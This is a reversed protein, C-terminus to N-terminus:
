FWEFGDAFLPQCEFEPCYEFAGLDQISTQSRAESRAHKVYQRLVPQAAGALPAAQDINVSESVLSFDQTGTNRFGPDTGSINDLTNLTGALSGHTAVWGSSLWNNRADAIGDQNLVALYSGGSSAYLINNRIDAHEDNTSLRLLTTNGSRTSVVTNHYFYLTGKRYISENGSDGGYHIIQSNGAGDPEILVNGYVYTRGYDPHNVVAASDEGDVLDLQRNGSEIWNNRVILGASRDKLNNGRAGDRLPGLYNHQYVIGLAATYTNHEYISGDIGNDHIRNGEILIDQTKGENVGVFLGNGSDRLICNRITLHRAVEVYIAAANKAYSQSAGNDDTFGYPPRGSRIDLNEIVIYTPPEENPNLDAGVKIVGRRENWYSLNGPTLADRGDIVPLQGTPGPVGSVVIPQSATGLGSIIWKEKYPTSKWHIFVRDGPRLDDWPADAIRSLNQGPGIHYDAAIAYQAFLLLGVFAPLRFQLMM